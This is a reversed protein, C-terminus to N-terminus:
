ETDIGGTMSRIVGITYLITLIIYFLNGYGEITHILPIALISLFGWVTTYMIAITLVRVAEDGLGTSVINFGLIAIVGAIVLLTAVLGMTPDIIVAFEEGQVIFSTTTGNVLAEVDLGQIGVTSIFANGTVVSFFCLVMLVALTMGILM